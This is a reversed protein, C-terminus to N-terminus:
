RARSITAAPPSASSVANEELRQQFAKADLEGAGDDLLAATLYSVGPKVEPDQNAGGTFAFTMAVLPVTTDRVLWAEIGGPSKM